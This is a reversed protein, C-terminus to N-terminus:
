RYRGTKPRKEKLGTHDRCWEHADEVETFKPSQKGCACQVRTKGNRQTYTFRHLWTM